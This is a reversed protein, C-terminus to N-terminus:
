TIQRCSFGRIRWGYAALERRARVYYVILIPVGFVPTASLLALLLGWGWGLVLTGFWANYAVVIPGLSMAFWFLTAESAMSSQSLVVLGVHYALILPSLRITWAVRWQWVPERLLKKVPIVGIPPLFPNNSEQDM